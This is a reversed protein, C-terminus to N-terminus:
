GLVMAPASLLLALLAAAMAVLAARAVFGANKLLTDVFDKVAQVGKQVVALWEDACEDFVVQRTVSDWAYLCTGDPGYKVIHMNVVSSYTGRPGADARDVHFNVHLASPFKPGAFGMHPNTLYLKLNGITRPGWALGAGAGQRPQLHQLATSNSARQPQTKKGEEKGKEGKYTSVLGSSLLSSSSPLIVVDVLDSSATPAPHVLSALSSLILILLLPNLYRSVRFSPTLIRIVSPPKMSMTRETISRSGPRNPSLYFRDQKEQTPFFYQHLSYGKNIHSFALQPNLDVLNPKFDCTTTVVTGDTKTGTYRIRCAQAVLGTQSAVVCGNYDSYLAFSKTRGDTTIKSSGGQAIQQATVSAAVNPKSQAKLLTVGETTNYLNFGPFALGQTPQVLFIEPALGSGRQNDFTVLVKSTAAYCVSTFLAIIAIPLM